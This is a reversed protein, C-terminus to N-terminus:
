PVAAISLYGSPVVHARLEHGRMLEMGVLPQANAAEIEVSRPACDWIIIGTHVDFIHIAGDALLGQQRCLWPLGLAAVLNPPLTLFGNFGTDIVAEIQHPQGTADQVTRQITAELSANVIGTM